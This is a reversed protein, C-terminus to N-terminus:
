AAEEEIVTDTALTRDLGSRAAETALRLAQRLTKGRFGETGEVDVRITGDKEEAFGGYRKGVLEELQDIARLSPPSIARFTM